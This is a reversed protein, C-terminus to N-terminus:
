FIGLWRFLAFVLGLAVAVFVGAIIKDERSM